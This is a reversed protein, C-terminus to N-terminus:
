WSVFRATSDETSATFFVKWFIVSHHKMTWLYIAPIRPNTPKSQNEVRTKLERLIVRLITKRTSFLLPNKIPVPM